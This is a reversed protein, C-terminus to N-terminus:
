ETNAKLDKLDVRCKYFKCVDYYIFSTEDYIGTVEITKAKEYNKDDATTYILKSSAKSSHWSITVENMCNEGPNAYIIDVGSVSLLTAFTTISAYSISFGLVVLIFFLVLKRIKKM